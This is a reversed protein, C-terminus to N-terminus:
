IATPYDLAEWAKMGGVINFINKNTGYKMMLSAALLSRNGSSCIFAIPKNGDLEFFRTRIDPAQIHIACDIHGSDWESHLRTDVIMIEDNDYKTKAEAASISQFRETMLGSLAYAEMGGELYGVVHDLGVSYLWKLVTDLDKQDQLVLLIPQDPPLVWGAFTVFNGKLTLGYAGPIHSAGFAFKERADVIIHGNQSLRAFEHPSYSIPKKLNSIAPAGKRNIASCRSFHDPAELMGELFSTIFKEKDHELMAHNQMKETGITSSLKSSLAKGCLSGAGHAPYVEINDGLKELRRLSDFLKAALEEKIDPFLDPRGADGVFLTDGTFVMVPEPGRDLDAVVFVTCDPTHGPTDLMKFRLSGIQFEEDDKLPHHDFKANAKETIYITAGTLQQLEVHGSVFDAHLHTELIGKIPLGFSEAIAIYQTVERAPDIVVCGDGGGVVYSCHALGPTYIQKFEM